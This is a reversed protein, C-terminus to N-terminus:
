NCKPIIKLLDMKNVFTMVFYPPDILKLYFMHFKTIYVNQFNSNFIDVYENFASFVVSCPEVTNTDLIADILTKIFLYFIYVCLLFIQM